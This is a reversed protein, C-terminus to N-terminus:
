QQPATSVRSRVTLKSVLIGALICVSGVATSFSIKEVAGGVPILLSFVAGFVPELAFILVIGTPSLYRQAKLMVYYAIATAFVACFVLSIIMEPATFDARQGPMFLWAAAGAATFFLMQYMNLCFGDHRNALVDSVLIYATFCAASGLTIVDGRNFATMQARIGFPASFDFAVIGSVFALGLLALLVGVVEKARPLKRRLCAGVLPVLPVYLATIFACNTATTYKIGEVQFYMCFFLLVGLLAADRVLKAHTHARLVRMGCVALFLSALAYRVTLFPISDAYLTGIKMFPFTAGWCLTAALLALNAKLKPGM